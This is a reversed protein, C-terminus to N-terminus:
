TPSGEKLWSLHSLIQYPTCPEGAVQRQLSSPWIRIQQTTVVPERYGPYMVGVISMCSHSSVRFVCACGVGILMKSLSTLEDKSESLWWLCRVILPTPVHISCLTLLEQKFYCFSSVRTQCVSNDLKILNPLWVLARRTHDITGKSQGLLM